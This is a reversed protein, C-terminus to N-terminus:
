SKLTSEGTLKCQMNRKTLGGLRVILTDHRGERTQLIAGSTNIIDGRGRTNIIVNSSYFGIVSSTDIVFSFLYIFFFGIRYRNFCIFLVVIVGVSYFFLYIINISFFSFSISFFFITKIIQIFPGSYVRCFLFERRVTM